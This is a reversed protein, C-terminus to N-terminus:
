SVASKQRRKWFAKNMGLLVWSWSPFKRHHAGLRFGIYKCLASAPIMPIRLPANCAAYRLQSLIFSVGRGEAAGSLQVIWPEFAIYFAGIDFYRNLEELPTYDHSHYVSSEAVYAIKKSALLMKFGIYVDESCVLGKPFGGVDMLCSRRYAAFSNSLAGAMIGLSKAGPWSKVHSESPYNFLRAHAELATAGIRPLQRGYAAGIVPDRFVNVLPTISSPAVPISDQTLFVVIDCDHLADVGLQRTGGHDFDSSPITMVEFGAHAALEATGDVSSSDIVLRRHFQTECVSLAALLDPFAQGANYTPICLGVRFLDELRKMCTNPLVTDNM